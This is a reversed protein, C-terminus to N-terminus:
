DSHPFIRVLFFETNPYKERLTLYLIRILIKLTVSSRAIGNKEKREKKYFIKLPLLFFLCYSSSTGILVRNLEGYFATEVLIENSEKGPGKVTFGSVTIGYIYGKTINGINTNNITINHIYIRNTTVRIGDYDFGYYLVSYGRFVGNQCSLTDPIHLWSM